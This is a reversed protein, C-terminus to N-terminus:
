RAEPRVFTMAREPLLYQSVHHAFSPTDASNSESVCSKTIQHTDVLPVEGM